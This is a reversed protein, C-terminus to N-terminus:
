SKSQVKRMTVILGTCKELSTSSSCLRRYREQLLHLLPKIVYYQNNVWRALGYHQNELSIDGYGEISEVILEGTENILERLTKEDFHRYHQINDNPRNTSPTTLVFYGDIKLCRIINKLAAVCNEPSIHELVEVFIIADFLEPFTQIFQSDTVDCCMFRGQPVMRRSHEIGNKSWDIGVVDLGAKVLQGCNWGDGCGVELVKKAGSKVILEVVRQVYYDHIIAWLNDRSLIWHDPLLYGYDEATLQKSEITM